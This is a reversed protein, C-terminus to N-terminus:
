WVRIQGYKCVTNLFLLMFKRELDFVAPLRGIFITSFLQYLWIECRGYIYINGLGAFDIKFDDTDQTRKKSALYGVNQCVAGM